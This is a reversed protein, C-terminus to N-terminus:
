PLIPNRMADLAASYPLIQLGKGKIYDILTGYNTADTGTTAHTYFCLWLGASQAADVYGELTAVAVGNTDVKLTTRARPIPVQQGALAVVGGRAFQFYEMTKARVLANNNYLPYAMARPTYGSINAQIDAKCGSVLQDLTYTGSPISACNTHDWTSTALTLDCHYKGHCAIEWGAAQMTNWNTWTGASAGGTNVFSTGAVSKAQFAPFMYTYDSALGDDFMFTVIPKSIWEYGTRARYVRQIARFARNQESATLVRNYQARFCLNGLYSNSTGVAWETVGAQAQGNIWSGGASDIAQVQDERAQIVTWSAGKAPLGNLCSNAIFRLGTQIRTPATACVGLNNNNGSLDPFTVASGTKAYPVLREGFAYQMGTIWVATTSDGNWTPTNDAQALGINYYAGNSSQTDLQSLVDVRAWGSGADSVTTIAGVGHTALSWASGDWHLFIYNIGTDFKFWPYAGGAKYKVYFRFALPTPESNFYRGVFHTNSTTNDATLVYVATNSPLEAPPTQGADVVSTVRGINWGGAATPVESNIVYNSAVIPWLGVLGNAPFGAGFNSIRIGDDGVPKQAYCCAALILLFVIKGM